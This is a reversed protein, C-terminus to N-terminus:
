SVSIRNHIIERMLIFTNTLYWVRRPSDIGPPTFSQRIGCFLVQFPAKKCSALSSADSNCNKRPSSM